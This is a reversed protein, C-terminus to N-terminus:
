RARHELMAIDKVDEWATKIQSDSYGCKALGRTLKNRIGTLVRPKLNMFYGGVYKGAYPKAMLLSEVANTQLTIANVFKAM